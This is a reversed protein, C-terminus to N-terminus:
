GNLSKNDINGGGIGAGKIEPGYDFEPRLGGKAKISKCSYIIITGGYNENSGGIGASAEGGGIELPIGGEADIETNIGGIIITGNSGQLGAGIGAGLTGVAKINGGFIEIIGSDAAYGSGIAAAYGGGEVHLDGGLIRIEGNSAENNGGIGAGGRENLKINLNGGHININGSSKEKTGGGIGALGDDIGHIIIKGIEANNKIGQDYITLKDGNSVDIGKPATLTTGDCLILRVDGRVAIRSDVTINTAIAYWGDTLETFSDELMTLKLKDVQCKIYEYDHLRKQWIPVKKRYEFGEGWQAELIVVGGEEATLNYVKEENMYHEDKDKVKWYLFNLKSPDPSVFTNKELPQSNHYKFEQDAMTGSGGNAEFKVTYTNETWQAYLTTDQQVKISASNDYRKGTGDPRENWHDFHWGTRAFENANLTTEEGKTVPQPNMHGYGGNSNFYIVARNKDQSCSVFLVACLLVALLLVLGKRM